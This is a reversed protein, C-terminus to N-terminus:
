NASPDAPLPGGANMNRAALLVSISYAKEANMLSLIDAAGQPTMRGLIGAAFTPEMQAFIDAAQKPKVNEYIATLQALDREAAGDALALTAALREEAAILDAKKRDFEAEAKALLSLREAIERERADLTDGRERIAALLADEEANTTASPVYQAATDVAQQAIAPGSLGVRVVASAAFCLLVLLLSGSRSVSQRAMM